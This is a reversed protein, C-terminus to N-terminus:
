NGRREEGRKENGAEIKLGSELLKKGKYPARFPKATLTPQVRRLLTKGWERNTKGKLFTTSLRFHLQSLRVKFNQYLIRMMM